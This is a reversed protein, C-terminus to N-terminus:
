LFDQIILRLELCFDVPNAENIEFSATGDSNPIGTLEFTLTYRITGDPQPFFGFPDSDLTVQLDFNRTICLFILDRMAAHISPHVGYPIVVDLNPHKKPIAGTLDPM